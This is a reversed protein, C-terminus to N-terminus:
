RTSPSFFFGRVSFFSINPTEETQFISARLRLVFSSHLSAQAESKKSFSSVVSRNVFSTWGRTLGLFFSRGPAVLLFFPGRFAQNGQFDSTQLIPFTGNNWSCRFSFLRRVGRLFLDGGVGPLSHSAGVPSSSVPGRGMGSSFFYSEKEM